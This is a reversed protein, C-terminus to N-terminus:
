LTELRVAARLIHRADSSQIRGNKDVDAAVFQASGAEYHELLVSARLALRADSSTIRGDGDVDGLARTTGSPKTGEVTFAIYSDKGISVGSKSTIGGGIKLLYTTGLTLPSRPTITIIRKISPDVQDDGMIVNIPVNNGDEDTMSFCKKNNDKVTFNVVNKNFTLVIEPNRSVDEAGNAISSSALELPKDKGGGTGDGNGGGALATFACVFLLVLVTLLAFLRKVNKKQRM